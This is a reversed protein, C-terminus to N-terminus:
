SPRMEARAAKGGIPVTARGSPLRSRRPLLPRVATFAASRAACRHDRRAPRGCGPRAHGASLAGPYALFLPFSLPVGHAMRSAARPPAPAHRPLHLFPHHARTRFESSFPNDVLHCKGAPGKELRQRDRRRRHREAWHRPRRHRFVSRAQCVPLDLHPAPPSASRGMLSAAPENPRVSASPSMNSTDAELVPKAYLGAEVPM